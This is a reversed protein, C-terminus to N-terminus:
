SKILQSIDLMEGFELDYKKPEFQMMCAGPTFTLESFYYRESTVFFDVRVFPFESCLCKATELMENFFTPPQIYEIDAYDGRKVPMKKGDLFFFGMQANRDHVLDNSVYLFKPEGNFCFFKYDSIDEGLYNECIVLHPNIGSYHLEINFAGFDEKLWKNLKKVARKKDFNNVDNCILNYACGHNCKLVFKKPLVNWDIDEASKWVGILPVLLNELGKNKLYDRVRYKDACQIVTPNNAYYYLKLWQLKENLTKPNDINLREGLVIRFYLKSMAADPVLKHAIVQINRRIKYLASDREM